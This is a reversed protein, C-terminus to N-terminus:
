LDGTLALGVILLPWLFVFMCIYEASSLESEGNKIRYYLALLCGISAYAFVYMVTFRGVLLRAPFDSRRCDLSSSGLSTWRHVVRELVSHCNRIRTFDTSLHHTHSLLDGLRSSNNFNNSRDYGAELSTISSLTSTGTM